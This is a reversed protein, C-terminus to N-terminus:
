CWLTSLKQHLKGHGVTSHPWVVWHGYILALGGLGIGQATLQHGM